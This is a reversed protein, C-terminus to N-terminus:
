SPVAKPGNIWDVARQEDEFIQADIGQRVASLRGYECATRTAEQECVFALRRQSGAWLDHVSELATPSALYFNPSAGSLMCIVGLCTSEESCMEAAAYLSQAIDEAGAPAGINLKVFAPYRKIQMCEECAVQEVKLLGRVSAAPNATTPSGCASSIM